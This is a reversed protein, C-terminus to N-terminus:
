RLKKERNADYYIRAYEQKKAEACPACYHVSPERDSIDTACGEQSCVRM